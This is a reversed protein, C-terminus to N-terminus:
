KRGESRARQTRYGTGPADLTPYTNGPKASARLAAGYDIRIPGVPQPIRLGLGTPQLAPTSQLKLQIPAFPVPDAASAPLVAFLFLALLPIKM